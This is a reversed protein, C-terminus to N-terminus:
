QAINVPSKYYLVKYPTSGGELTVTAKVAYGKASDGKHGVAEITFTNSDAYTIYPASQPQIGVEQANAIKKNQRFDIILDALEPTIGPVATLIEKPAANINVGPTKSYCTLFDIIGKREGSGYLIEPTVGKVLLLEEVSDFDSHTPQYPNPLSMYYDDGAGHLRHMGVNKDKWDLTSDVITDADEDKVGSAILLNKLIIGSSDTLANIDIKGSEDTIRVTYSDEGIQAPYPTGDTKWTNADGSEVGANQKGYFIEVIGREIGAEALFKKEVREKFSRTSLTETRAMLSFSLVIVMLITLVWLVLLLAIGDRSVLVTKEQDYKEVSRVAFDNL